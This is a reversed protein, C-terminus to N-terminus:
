GTSSKKPMSVSKLGETSADADSTIRNESTANNSTWRTMPSSVTTCVRRHGPTSSPRGGARVAAEHYM